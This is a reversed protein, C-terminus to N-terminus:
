SRSSTPGSCAQPEAVLACVPHRPAMFELEGAGIRQRELQLRAGREHAPRSPDRRGPRRLRRSSSCRASRSAVGGVAQTGARRARQNNRTQHRRRQDHRQNLWARQEVFAPRLEIESDSAHEAEAAVCSLASRCANLASFVATIRYRSGSRRDPLEATRGRRQIGADHARSGRPLESFRLM